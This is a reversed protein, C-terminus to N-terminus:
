NKKSVFEVSELRVGMSRSWYVRAVYVGRRCVVRISIEFAKEDIVNVDDAAAWM